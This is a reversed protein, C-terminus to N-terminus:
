TPIRQSRPFPIVKGTEEAPEPQQNGQPPHKVEYKILNDIAELWSAYRPYDVRRLAHLDAILEQEEKTLNEM